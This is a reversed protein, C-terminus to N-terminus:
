IYKCEKGKDFATKLMLRFSDEPFYCWDILLTGWLAGGAVNGFANPAIDNVGCGDAYFRLIPGKQSTIRFGNERIAVDPGMSWMDLVELGSASKFANSAVEKINENRQFFIETVSSSWPVGEELATIGSDAYTFKKLSTFSKLYSWPFIRSFLM